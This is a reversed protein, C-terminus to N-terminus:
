DAVLALGPVGFGAGAEAAVSAVRKFVSGAVRGGDEGWGIGATGEPVGVAVEAELARLSVVEVAVLAGRDIVLAVGPFTGGAAASAAVM